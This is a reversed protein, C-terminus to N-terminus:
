QYVFFATVNFCHIIFDPVCFDGLKSFCGDKCLIFTKSSEFGIEPYTLKWVHSAV